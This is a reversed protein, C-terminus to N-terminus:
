VETNLIKSLNIVLIVNKDWNPFIEMGLGTFYHFIRGNKKGVDVGERLVYKM